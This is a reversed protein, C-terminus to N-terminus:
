LPKNELLDWTPYGVEPGKDTDECAYYDVGMYNVVTGKPYKVGPKPEPQEQKIAGGKWYNRAETGNPANNKNTVHSRIAMYLIDGVRYAEGSEVSLGETWEPYLEIMEKTAETGPIGTLLEALHNNAQALMQKTEELARKTDLVEQRIRSDESVKITERLEYAKNVTDFRTDDVPVKDTQEIGGIYTSITYGNVNKTITLM